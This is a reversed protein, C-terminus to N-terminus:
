TIKIKGRSQEFHCAGKVILCFTCVLDFLNLWFQNLEYKGKEDCVINKEHCYTAMGCPSWLRPIIAVSRQNRRNIPYLHSRIVAKRYSSLSGARLFIRKLSGPLISYISIISIIIHGLIISSEGQFCNGRILYPCYEEYNIPQGLRM